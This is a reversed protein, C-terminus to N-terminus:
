ITSELHRIIAFKLAVTLGVLEVVVVAVQRLALVGVGLGAVVVVHGV